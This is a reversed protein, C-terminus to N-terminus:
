ELESDRAISCGFVLGFNQDASWFAISRHGYAVTGVVSFMYHFNLSVPIFKIVLIHFTTKLLMETKWMQTALIRVAHSCWCCRIKGKDWTFKTTTRLAMATNVNSHCQAVMTDSKYKIHIDYIRSYHPYEICEIIPWTRMSILTRQAHTGTAAPVAHVPTIRHHKPPISGIWM